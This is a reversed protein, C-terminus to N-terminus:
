QSSVDIVKKSEIYTKVNNVDAIKWGDETKSLEAIKKVEVSATKEKADKKYFSLTYTIFCQDEACKKLNIKLKRKKYDNIDAFTNYDEDSMKALEENLSGTTYSLTKEKDQSSSFRYNVFNRLTEDPGKQSNCSIFTVGCFIFLIFSKLRM